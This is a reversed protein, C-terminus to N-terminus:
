APRGRDPPRHGASPRGESRVERASGSVSELKRSESRGVEFRPCGVLPFTSANGPAPVLRLVRFRVHLDRTGSNTISLFMGPTPEKSAFSSLPAAFVEQETSRLSPGLM